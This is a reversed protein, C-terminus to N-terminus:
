ECLLMLNNEPRCKTNLAELHTQKHSTNFLCVDKSDGHVDDRVPEPAHEGGALVDVPLDGSRHGDQGIKEGKDRGEDVGDGVAELPGGHVLGGHGRVEGGDGPLHVLVRM